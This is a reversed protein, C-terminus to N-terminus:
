PAVLGNTPATPTPSASAAPPVQAPLIEVCGSVAGSISPCPTPPAPASGGVAHWAGARWLWTDSGAPGQGAVAAIKSPTAIGGFLVVSGDPGAAMAEGSRATPGPTSVHHAWSSAGDALTWTEGSSTIMVIASNARAVSAGVLDPGPGFIVRPQPSWSTGSWAWWATACTPSPDSGAFCPASTQAMLSAHGTLPDAYLAVEEVANLNRASWRGGAWVWTSVGGGGGCAISASAPATLPCPVSGSPCSSVTCVDAAAGSRSASAPAECPILPQRSGSSLPAGCPYYVTAVAVVHGSAADYALQANASPMVANAAADVRHWGQANFVWTQVPNSAIVAPCSTAPSTPAPPTIAQSPAVSAAPPSSVPTAGASGTAGPVSSPPSGSVSSGTSSGSGSSGVVCGRVSGTGSVAAQAMGVLLVGGDPPDDSMHAGAMPGPGTAQAPSGWHSGDWVWTDRLAAGGSGSGGFMVTVGSTSDWAMAANSRAPPTGTSTTDLGNERANRLALFTGAGAVAVLVALVGAVAQPWRRGHTTVESAPTRQAYGATSRPATLHAFAEALDRDDRESM